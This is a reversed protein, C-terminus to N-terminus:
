HVPHCLPTEVRVPFILKHYCLVNKHYIIFTTFNNNKDLIRKPLWHITSSTGPFVEALVFEEMKFKSIRSRCVLIGHWELLPANIM